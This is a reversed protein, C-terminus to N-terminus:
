RVSTPYLESSWISTACWSLLGFLKGIVGLMVRLPLVLVFVFCAGILLLM